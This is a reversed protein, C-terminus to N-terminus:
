LPRIARASKLTVATAISIIGAISYPRALTDRNALVQSCAEPARVVFCQRRGELRRETVSGMCVRVGPAAPGELARLRFGTARLRIPTRHARM